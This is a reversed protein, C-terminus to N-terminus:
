LRSSVLVLGQQFRRCKRSSSIDKPNQGGIIWLGASCNQQAVLQQYTESLGLSNTWAAFSSYLQSQPRSICPELHGEWKM